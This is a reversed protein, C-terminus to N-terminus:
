PMERRQEGVWVGLEEVAAPNATNKLEVKLSIARGKTEPPLWWSFRTTKDQNDNSLKSPLAAGDIYVEIEISGTFLASIKRFKKLSSHKDGTWEGTWYTGTSERAYGLEIVKEAPGTLPHQKNHTLFLDGFSSVGITGDRDGPTNEPPPPPPVIVIKSLGHKTNYKYLCRPSLVTTSVPEQVYFYLSDRYVAMGFCYGIWNNERITLMEETLNKVSNGDTFVIGKRTNWFVKSEFEVAYIYKYQELFYGKNQGSDDIFKLVPIGSLANDLFISFSRDNAIFVFRDLAYISTFVRSPSKITQEPNYLGPNANASNVLSFYFIFNNSDVGLLTGAPNISIASVSEPLQAYGETMLKSGLSANAKNDAYTSTGFSVDGVFLYQTIGAGRRYINIKSIQADSIATSAAALANKSIEIASSSTIVNTVYTDSPIQTNAVLRTGVRMKDINTVSVITKANAGSQTTGTSVSTPISLNVISNASSVTAVVLPSPASEYGLANAFTIVYDYSGAAVSGGSSTVSSVTAASPSPLGLIDWNFSNTSYQAGGLNQEKARQSRYFVGGFFAMTYRNEYSVTQAGFSAYTKALFTPDALPAGEKFVGTLAGTSVDVGLMEQAGGPGVKDPNLYTNLGGFRDSLMVYQM